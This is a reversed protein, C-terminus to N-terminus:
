ESEIENGCKPCRERGKGDVQLRLVSLDEGCNWCRMGRNELRRRRLYVAAIAVCIAALAPFLWDM